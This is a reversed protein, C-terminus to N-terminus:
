VRELQRRTTDWNKRPTYINKNHVTCYEGNSNHLDISTSDLNKLTPLEDSDFDYYMIHFGCKSLELKGGSSWLLDHWLQADHKVMALLQEVSDGGKAGTICTSDDVFGVISFKVVVDGLPSSLKMGHSKQNHCDFLVSSIFCWIM